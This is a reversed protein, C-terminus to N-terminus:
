CSDDLRKSRVAVSAQKLTETVHSIARVVESSSDRLESIVGGAQQALVVGHDARKMNSEISKLAKSALLHNLVHPEAPCGALPQCPCYAFFARGASSVRPYATITRFCESPM